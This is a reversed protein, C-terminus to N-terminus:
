MIDCRHCAEWSSSLRIMGPEVAEPPNQIISLNGGTTEEEVMRTIPVSPYRANRMYGERFISHRTGEM